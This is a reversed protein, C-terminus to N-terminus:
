WPLVTFGVKQPLIELELLRLYQGIGCGWFLVCIKLIIPTAMHIALCELFVATHSNPLPPVNGRSLHLLCISPLSSKWLPARWHGPFNLKGWCGYSNFGRSDANAWISSVSGSAHHLANSRKKEKIQSLLKSQTQLIKRPKKGSIIQMGAM